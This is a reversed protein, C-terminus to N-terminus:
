SAHPPSCFMLGLHVREEDTVQIRGRGVVTIRAGGADDGTNTTEKAPEGRLEESSADSSKPSRSKSESM